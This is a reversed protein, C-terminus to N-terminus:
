IADNSDTKEQQAASWVAGRLVIEHVPSITNDENLTGLLLLDFDNPHRAIQSEAMTAIDSFMRIAPASHPHLHLGGIIAGAVNDHIAYILKPM